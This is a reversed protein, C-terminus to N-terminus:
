AGSRIDRVLAAEIRRGMVVTLAFVLLGCVAMAWRLGVGWQLAIGAALLVVFLLSYRMSLRKAGPTSLYRDITVGKQRRVVMTAVTPVLLIGIIVGYPILSWSFSGAAFAFGFSLGLLTQYWVPTTVQSAMNGRVDAVSDLAAKAAAPDPKGDSEM